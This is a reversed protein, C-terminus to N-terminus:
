KGWWKVGNEKCAATVADTYRGVVPQAPEGRRRVASAGATCATNPELTCFSGRAQAEEDAATPNADQFHVACVTATTAPRCTRRGGQSASSKETEKLAAVNSAPQLRDSLPQATASSSTQSGSAFTQTEAGASATAATTPTATIATFSFIQSRHLTEFVWSPPERVTTYSDDTTATSATAYEIQIQRDISTCRDGVAENASRKRQAACRRIAVSSLSSRSQHSSTPPHSSTCISLQQTRRSIFSAPLSTHNSWDPSSCICTTAFSCQRAARHFTRCLYEIYGSRSATVWQRLLSRRFELRDPQSSGGSRLLQALEDHSSLLAPGFAM